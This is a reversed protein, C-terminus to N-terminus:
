EDLSTKHVACYNNSKFGQSILMGSNQVVGFPQPSAVALEFLTSFFLAVALFNNTM